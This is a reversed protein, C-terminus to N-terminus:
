ELTHILSGGATSTLNDNSLFIELATGSKPCQIPVLWYYRETDDGVTRTGEAALVVDGAGPITMHFRGDADTKASAIPGGPLMAFFFRGSAKSDLEATLRALEQRSRLAEEEQKHLEGFRNIDEGSDEANRVKQRLREMEAKDVPNEALVREIQRIAPLLKTSALDAEKQRAAMIPEIADRRFARVAVLGLKYNEAGKTVIFVQGSVDYSSRGCGCFPVLALLALGILLAFFKPHM